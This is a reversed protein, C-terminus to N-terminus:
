KLKKRLSFNISNIEFVQIIIFVCFQFLFTILIINKENKSLSLIEKNAEILFDDEANTSSKIFYLMEKLWQSIDFNFELVTFYDDIIKSNPSNIHLTKYQKIELYIEEFTQFKKFKYNEFNINNFKQYASNASLVSNVYRDIKEQPYSPKILELIGQHLENNIDFLDSINKIGFDEGISSFSREIDKIEEYASQLYPAYFDNASFIKNGLKTESFFQKDVRSSDESKNSIDLDNILIELNAVFSSTESISIQYELIESQKLSINREILFSIIASSVAFISFFIGINILFLAKRKNKQINAIYSQYLAFRLYRM